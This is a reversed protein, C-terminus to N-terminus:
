FYSDGRYMVDTRLVYKIGKTVLTGEHQIPHQFILGLGTKPSISIEPEVIFDTNGGEEVENLYILFSYFSRESHNRQYSGDAHLAFKMGPKYRYCRFLENIGVLKGNFITPPLKHKSRHFITEAFAEDKMFSRDNNRVDSVIKTGGYTNITAQSLDSSDIQKIFEHCESESLLDEILTIYPKSNDIM